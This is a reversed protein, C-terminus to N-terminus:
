AYSEETLIINLCEQVADAQNINVLYQQWWYAKDKDNFQMKARCYRVAAHAAQEEYHDRRDRAELIQTDQITTTQM